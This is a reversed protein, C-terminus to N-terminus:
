MVLLIVVAALILQLINLQEKKHIQQDKFKFIIRKFLCEVENNSVGIKIRM